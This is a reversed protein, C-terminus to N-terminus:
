LDKTIVEKMTNYIKEIENKTISYPPVAYITGGLPRLLVGRDMAKTMFRYAFDGKFYNPDEGNIEFAGVTGLQRVGSTSEIDNLNLLSDKTWQVINKIKEKTSERELLEMTKNAVACALPNATYSHGHLFAKRMDENYFAEYLEERVLTVALPLFGGTLGKSLCLLDPKLDSHEFAFMKGTRYFGTFVEDCIILGNAKQALRSILDLNEKPYMRMGSAGQIMPEVIVGALEESNKEFVAKIDESNFPDMFEVPFMLSNFVENFGKREGLSMAGLTDGHYAGSLALFKRKQTKGRQQHYQYVMKTAVEVSTSGNDSYFVKSLQAGSQRTLEVLKESLRVAPEHSFGAFIVHELQDVQDKISMSLEPHSHGFLNVWWSSIGDIVKKNGLNLYSGKGSTVVPHTKVIGHQTFPHWVFEKDKAELQTTNWVRDGINCLNKRLAELEQQNCEVFNQFTELCLKEFYPLRFLIPVDVRTELYRELDEDESGNIIIGLCHLGMMKMKELTLLTHNITGLKGSIVLIAPLNFAQILDAMTHTGNLPVMLGGAGEVITFTEASPTFSDVVEDINLVRGELKASRDPSAPEKLEYTSPVINLKSGLISQVFDSDRPIGSQIPKFYNVEQEGSFYHCLFTSVVTKGIDTDTGTVFLGKM